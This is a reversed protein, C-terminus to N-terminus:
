GGLGERRFRQGDQDGAGSRLTGRRQVRKGTEEFFREAVLPEQKTGWYVYENTSLDDPETQGTKELWLQWPSKYPNLGLIVGADSGGIGRRRYSLWEESSLNSTDVLEQPEYKLWLVM